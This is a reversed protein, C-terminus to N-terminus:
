FITLIALYFLFNKILKSIKFTIIAYYFLTFYFIILYVIAFLIYFLFYFVALFM